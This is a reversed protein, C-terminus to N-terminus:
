AKQWLEKLELPLVAKIDKLEGQSIFSKLVKFVASTFHEATKLDPLGAKERIRELFEEFSLKEFYTAAMLEKIGRPLQAALDDIETVPLRSALAALVAQCVRHAEERDRLGAEKLVLDYFEFEELSEGLM